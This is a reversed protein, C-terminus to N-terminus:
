SKSIRRKRAYLMIAIFALILSILQPLRLGFIQAAPDGRLFEVAFRLMGYLIIYPLFIDGEKHPREQMAKLIIFLALLGLSSYLQTPYRVMGSESSIVGLWTDTVKGYCCGNFLCGIRGISHALAAYPAISDGVKYFSLKNKKIFWTGALIAGILGGYFVLGGHWIIFVESPNKQFESFNSIVYFLRAGILGFAILFFSLESMFESTLGTKPANRGALYSAALFAAALAAGYSYIRFVGIEFLIPHM